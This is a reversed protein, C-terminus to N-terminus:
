FHRHHCRYHEGAFQSLANHVFDFSNEPSQGPVEKVDVVLTVGRCVGSGLYQAHPYVWGRGVEIREALPVLYMEQVAWAM